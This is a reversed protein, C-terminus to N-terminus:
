FSHADALVVVKAIENCLCVNNLKTGGVYVFAEREAVRATTEFKVDANIYINTQVM